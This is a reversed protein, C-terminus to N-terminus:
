SRSVWLGATGIVVCTTGGPSCTVRGAFQHFDIRQTWTQGDSTSVLVSTRFTKTLLLCANGACAAYAGNGYSAQDDPPWFSWTKAGDTTRWV